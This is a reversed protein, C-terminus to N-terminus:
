DSGIIDRRKIIHSLRWDPTYFPGIHALVVHLVDRDDIILDIVVGSVITSEREFIIADGVEADKWEVTTPIQETESM